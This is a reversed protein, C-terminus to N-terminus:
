DNRNQSHQFAARLLPLEFHHFFYIMSHYTFLMTTLLALGSYQGNFRYHYAYFVFQYLYFFRLFYRRTIRSQVALSDFHDAVWVMIIIHFTISSDSFFEYMITEMGILALIVTILSVGLFSIRRAPQQLELSRLFESVFVFVQQHSYRILMSVFLTFIFMIFAAALYSTRTMWVNVFRFHEGTVVNRVFGKNNENEALQKISGILVDDYGLFNHLMFKAMSDGFCKDKVPNLIVRMVPVNYHERMTESLRLLGYELSYEIIYPDPWVTNLKFTPDDLTSEDRHDDKKISDNLSFAERENIAFKYIHNFYQNYTMPYIIHGTKTYTKNPTEIEFNKIPQPTRDSDGIEVRIIGNRPWTHKVHDLCTLPSRIFIIHMHILLAFCIVAMLLVLYEIFCRLFKPVSVSYLLAIRILLM